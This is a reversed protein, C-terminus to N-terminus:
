LILLDPDNELADRLVALNNWQLFHIKASLLVLFIKIVNSGSGGGAIEGDEAIRRQPFDAFKGIM